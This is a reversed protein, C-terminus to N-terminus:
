PGVAYDHIIEVEIRRDTNWANQLTIMDVIKNRIIIVDLEDSDVSLDILKKLRSLEKLNLM